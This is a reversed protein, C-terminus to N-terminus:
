KRAEQWVEWLVGREDSTAWQWAPQAMLADFAARSETEDSTRVPLPAFHMHVRDSPCRYSWGHVDVLTAYGQEDKVLEWMQGTILSKHTPIM